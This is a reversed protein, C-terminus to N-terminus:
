WADAGLATAFRPHVAHALPYKLVPPLTNAHVCHVSQAALVYTDVAPVAAFSRTHV